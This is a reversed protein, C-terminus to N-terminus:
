RWGTNHNYYVDLEATVNNAPNDSGGPNLAPFEGPRGTSPRNGAYASGWPHKPVFNFKPPGKSVLTRASGRPSKQDYFRMEFNATGKIQCLSGEVEGNTVNDANFIFDYGQSWTMCGSLSTQVGTIFKNKLTKRQAIEPTDSSKINTYGLNYEEAVLAAAEITSFDGLGLDERTKGAPVFHNEFLSSSGSSQMDECLSGFLPDSISWEFQKYDKSALDFLMFRAPPFIANLTRTAARRLETVQDDLLDQVPTGRVTIKVTSNKEKMRDFKAYIDDPSFTSMGAEEFSIHDTTISTFTRKEEQLSQGTFLNKM